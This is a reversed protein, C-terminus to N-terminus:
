RREPRLYLWGLWVMMILVMLNLVSIDAGQNISSPLKPKPPALAAALKLTPDVLTTGPVAEDLAKVETDPVATLKTAVAGPGQAGVLDATDPAIGALVVQEGLTDIAQTQGPYSDAPIRVERLFPFRVLNAQQKWADLPMLKLGATEILSKVAGDGIPAVIVAAQANASTLAASMAAATEADAAVTQAQMGLGAALTPALRSSATGAPGTVITKISAADAGERALLHVVTQGVAAVAEFREDRVPAAGGLNFFADAEVLALRAAGSAVPALPDAGPALEIERGVFAKRSARLAANGFGTEALGQSVSIQLPAEDSVVGGEVLGLEALAARAVAEAPRGDIDVSRNLAQMMKADIKGALRELAAAAQPVRALSDVRAVPAAEYVPFFQLDDALVVMGYDAIQGDTTYVEAVDVAGDLLKDYLQGRDALPVIDTRGFTMGYRALLPQLGDLPRQQFDAEIGLTLEGAKAVLQSINTIGLEEARDARMALGYNNAFGLRPLWTLGLPKYLEEVRKTAEDGDAVPNQGIMVLGTGNYDPYLDVEGRKLAELASQTSPYEIPGTVDVGAEELLIAFMNSLVRSEGFNKSGVTIGGNGGTCAVLALLM